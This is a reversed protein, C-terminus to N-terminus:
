DALTTHRSTHPVTNEWFYPAANHLPCIIGRCQPLCDSFRLKGIAVQTNLERRFKFSATFVFILVFLTECFDKKNDGTECGLLAEKNVEKVLRLPM